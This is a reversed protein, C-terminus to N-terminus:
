HINNPRLICAKHTHVAVIYNKERKMMLVSKCTSKSGSPETHAKNLLWVLCVFVEVQLKVCNKEKITIKFIIIDRSEECIEKSVNWHIFIIGLSLDNINQQKRALQLCVDFSM